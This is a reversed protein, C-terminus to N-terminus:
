VGKIKKNRLAMAIAKTREINRPDGKPYRPPLQTAEITQIYPQVAAAYDGQAAQVGTGFRSTGVEVAKRQWKATGASQVGKEFRKGTIAQQVGQAYNSGAKATATAWDESPNQVGQAYDEGRQSTVRSWKEAFNSRVKTM